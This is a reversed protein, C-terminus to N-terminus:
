PIAEDRRRSPGDMRHSPPQASAGFEGLRKSSSDFHRGTAPNWLRYQEDQQSLRTMLVRADPSFDHFRMSTDKDTDPGGSKSLFHRSQEKGDAIQWSRLVLDSHATFLVKGDRRFALARSRRKAARFISSKRAPLFM